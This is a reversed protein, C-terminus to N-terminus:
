PVSIQCQNSSLDPATVTFVMNVNIISFDKQFLIHLVKTSNEALQNNVATEPWTTSYSPPSANATAIWQNDFYVSTLTPNGQQAWTVSLGVLHGIIGSGAPNSNFVQINYSYPAWTVGGFYISNPSINYTSCDPYPPTPTPTVTDTPEGPNKPTKSPVPTLSPIPTNTKTPTFPDYSGFYPTTSANILVNDIVTRANSSSVTLNGFPVLPVIPNYPVSVRVQVRDGNGFNLGSPSNNPCYPVPSPFPYAVTPNPLKYLTINNSSIGAISGVREAAARINACDDYQPIGTKNDGVGVGYRAGERSASSVIAYIFLLRAGEIIGMILLLLIPLALAFEVMGQAISRGRDNFAFL